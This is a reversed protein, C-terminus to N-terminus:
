ARSATYFAGLIPADTPRSMLFQAIRWQGDIRRWVKTQYFEGTHREGAWIGEQTWYQHAIATDGYVRVHRDAATAADLRYGMLYSRLKDLPITVSADVRVSTMLADATFFALAAEVDHRLLTERFAEERRVVAEAEPENEAPGFGTTSPRSTFHSNL